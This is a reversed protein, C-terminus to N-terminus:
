SINRMMQAICINHLFCTRPWAPQVARVCCWSISGVSWSNIYKGQRASTSPSSYHQLPFVDYLDYLDDARPPLKLKVRTIEYMGRTTDYIPVYLITQLVVSVLVRGLYWPPRVGEGCTHVCGGWVGGGGMTINHNSACIADQRRRWKNIYQQQVTTQQAAPLYVIASGFSAKHSIVRVGGRVLVWVLIWIM